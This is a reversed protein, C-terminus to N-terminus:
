NSKIFRITLPYTYPIRKYAKVCMIIIWIVQFILQIVVFGIAFILAVIGSKIVLLLSFILACFLYIIQSIQFNLSESGHHQVESSEQKKFLWILLPVIISGFPIVVGSLIGLHCLMAWINYNDMRPEEIVVPIKNEMKLDM